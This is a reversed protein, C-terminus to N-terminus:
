YEIGILQFADKNLMRILNRNFKGSESLEDETWGGEPNAGPKLAASTENKDFASWNCTSIRYQKIFNIWRDTEEWDIIGSGNAESTGFESIFLSAGNNMASVSKDRLWQKHTSTYFHLAYTVNNDIIPDKAAIDVDQSWTPNGVIILNDPDNARITNIVEISYPKVVKSWSIQLPENYIEYIINPYDGYKESVIDFFVKAQDLHKEANHDHWDVVVYIGNKIAADIVIFVKEIEAEPNTLYGGGEIGMAARVVTCKWDSYLWDVCKENYFSTKNFKESANAWQSWFLSMGHLSVVNGNKDTINKGNVQLRGYLDVITKNSMNQGPEVGTNAKSCSSILILFFLLIFTKKSKFYELVTNM